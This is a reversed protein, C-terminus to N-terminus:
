RLAWPGGFSTIGHGHRAIFGSLTGGGVVALNLLCEFIAFAKSRQHLYFMDIIYGNGLIALIVGFLSCFLRSITFGLYDKPGIMEGPWTQFAFTSVLSWFLVSRRGVVAVVPAILSAAVLNLRQRTTRPYSCSSPSSTTILCCRAQLDLLVASSSSFKRACADISVIISTLAKTGFSM